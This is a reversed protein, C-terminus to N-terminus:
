GHAVPLTAEGCLNFFRKCTRSLSCLDWVNILKFLVQLLLHDPLDVLKTTAEKEAAVTNVDM